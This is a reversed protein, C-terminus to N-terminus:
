IKEKLIWFKFEEETYLTLLKEKVNTSFYMNKNHSRLSHCNTYGFDSNGDNYCLYWKEQEDDSFDAVWDNDEKNLTAITNLIQTNLARWELEVRPENCSTFYNGDQFRGKDVIDNRWNCSEVQRRDIYWYKTRDEPYVRARYDVIPEPVVEPENMRENIAFLANDIGSLIWVSLEEKTIM